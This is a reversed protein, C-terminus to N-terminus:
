KYVKRGEKIGENFGRRKRRKNKYTRTFYTCGKM